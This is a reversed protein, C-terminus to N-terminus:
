LIQDSGCKAEMIKPNSDNYTRSFFLRVTGDAFLVLEQRGAGTKSSYFGYVLEVKNLPMEETIGLPLPTDTTMPRKEGNKNLPSKFTKLDHRKKHDASVSTDAQEGICLYFSICVMGAMVSFLRKM